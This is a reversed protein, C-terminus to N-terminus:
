SSNSWGPRIEGQPRGGPEAFRSTTRLNHRGICPQRGGREVPGGRYASDPNEVKAACRGRPPGPAAAGAAFLARTEQLNHAIHHYSWAHILHMHALFTAIRTYVDYPWWENQIERYVEFHDPASGAAQLPLMSEVNHGQEDTHKEKRYWAPVDYGHRSRKAAADDIDVDENFGGENRRNEGQHSTFPVRFVEKLPQEEYSALFKRAKDLM